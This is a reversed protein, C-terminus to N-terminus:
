PTVTSANSAQALMAFNVPHNKNFAIKGGGFYFALVEFSQGLLAQNGDSGETITIYNRGNIVSGSTKWASITQEGAAVDLPGHGDFFRHNM